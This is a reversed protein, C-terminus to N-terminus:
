DFTLTTDQVPVHCQHYTKSKREEEENNTRVEKRMSQWLTINDKKLRKNEERLKALEDKLYSKDARLELKENRLDDVETEIQKVETQISNMRAKQERIFETATFVIREKDWKRGKIVEEGRVQTLLEELDKFRAVRM